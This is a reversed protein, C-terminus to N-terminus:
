GCPHPTYSPFDTAYWTAGTHADVDIRKGAIAMTGPPRYDIQWLGASGPDDPQPSLLSCDLHHLPGDAHVRGPMWQPTGLQQPSVHENTAAAQRAQDPTAILISTDSFPGAHAARLGLLAGVFLAVVIGAAM